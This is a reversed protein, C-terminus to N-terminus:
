APVPAFRPGLPRRPEVAEGRGVLLKGRVALADTVEREDLLDLIETSRRHVPIGVVDLLLVLEAGAVLDDVGAGLLEGALDDGDIGPGAGDVELPPFAVPRM